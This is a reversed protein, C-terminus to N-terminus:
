RRHKNNMAQTTLRLQLRPDLKVHPKTRLDKLLAVALSEDNCQGSIGTLVEDILAPPLGAQPQLLKPDFGMLRPHIGRLGVAARILGAADTAEGAAVAGKLLLSYTRVDPRVREKALRELVEFARRLDKNHICAQILNSYVHINLKFRYKASIRETLQFAEDLRKGRSAMKVLVSLTYNSPRVVKEMESLLKIGREYLGQRACGDLLTNYMIEDPKYKTTQVMGEMLEFAEDLRNEQCYGKLIASYTILNPEIGQDQMSQLLGRIRNMEGGRSSADVLTNFTVISFQVKQKLMEQYTAWVRDFKKQHSFGKVVSCYIVANVISCCQEDNLMEQILAYGAEPDGNSVVAEVMCGLTVSTPVIHRTRMERWTDWAGDIDNVFGYARIISGYTHPGRVQIRRASGQRKLYPMLLDVRGVRICAEVVSSLLVEDMEEIMSDLVKLIREVNTAVSTSDITKLLISCTIHNPKVGCADMEDLIMWAEQPHTKVCADLLENFTVCNPQLGAKKMLEVATRAEKRDGALLHMKIITNYTVTDAVGAEFAQEM